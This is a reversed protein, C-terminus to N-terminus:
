LNCKVKTTIDKKKILKKFRTINPYNTNEKIGLQEDSILNSINDKISYDIEKKDTITNYNCNDKLEKLEKELENINTNIQNLKKEFNRKENINKKFTSYKPLLLSRMFLMEVITGIFITLQVGILLSIIITQIIALTFFICDIKELKNITKNCDNIDLKILDRLHIIDELLNEKKLIKIFDKECISEKLDVKDNSHMVLYKNNSIKLYENNM